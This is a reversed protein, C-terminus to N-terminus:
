RRRYPLHSGSRLLSEATKGRPRYHGGGWKRAPRRNLTRSWAWAALATALVLDDHDGERWAEYSEHGTAVNVKLRFALLEQRLTEAHNLASAIKLDGAHLLVQLSGVLDQKPVRVSGRGATVREGATITVATLGKQRKRFVDVVGAGVGTKDVILASNDLLPPTAVLAEIREAVDPYLMDRFRELHVVHLAHAMEGGTDLMVAEAVCATYDSVQGIDAGVFFRKM